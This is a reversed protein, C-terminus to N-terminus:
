HPRSPQTGATAPPLAVHLTAGRDRNNTAWLRGGHATVITRCIALGLGLGDAKTTVFPQFIKEVDADPIGTGRDVISLAVGGGDWSTTVVSLRREDAPVGAMADCGNLILNLLVQQLQVRDGVV